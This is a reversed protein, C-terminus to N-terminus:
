PDQLRSFPSAAVFRRGLGGELRWIYCGSIQCDRFRRIRRAKAGINLRPFPGRCARVVEVRPISKLAAFIEKVGRIVM